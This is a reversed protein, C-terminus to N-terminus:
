MLPNAQQQVLQQQMASMQQDQMAEQQAKAREKSLNASKTAIERELRNLDESDKALTEGLLMNDKIERKQLSAQVDLMMKQQRAQEQEAAIKKQYEPLMKEIQEKKSTPLPLYEMILPLAVEQPLQLMQIAQTMMQLYREKMSETKIAEDIVIDTKIERLTSTIGDDLEVYYVDKDDGILRIMQSPSMFNKIYWVIRMAVEQKWLRLRDFVTLRGIGGAEARAQVARGSEAANEQLGLSNRGGAYDQMRSISFEINNFIQPNVQQNPLNAIAQHSLVPIVPATRSNEERVTEATWGKRLLSEVVTTVNKNSAGLLYDWQSFSRNLLRQPSILVDVFAWFDGEDFYPFFVVWPFDPLTTIENHIVENEVVITQMLKPATETILMVLENGDVDVIPTGEKGYAESLDYLHKLAERRSTHPTVEGSIEDVILYSNVNIREFYEIHRLMDKDGRGRSYGRDIKLQRQKRRKVTDTNSGSYSSSASAVKEIIDEAFPYREKLFRRSKMAVRAMWRADCLTPEVATADWFMENSPVYEVAPYGHPVEDLEWYVVAAGWGGIIGKQFVRTELNDLDNVQTAWKLLYTLLQAAPEDGPERGVAKVDLRTQTQSGVIHDVKSQIENFVFPTRNQKLHAAIEVDTWQRGAYFDHNEEAKAQKQLFFDKVSEIDDLVYNVLEQSEEIDLREVGIPTEVGYKKYTKM